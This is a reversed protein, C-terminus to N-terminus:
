AHTKGTCLARGHRGRGLHKEVKLDGGWIGGGQLGICDKLFM